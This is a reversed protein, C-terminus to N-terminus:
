NEFVYDDKRLNDMVKQIAQAAADPKIRDLVLGQINQQFANTIEPPWYWDLYITQNPACQEAYKMALPDESAQVNINTSAPEAGQETSWKSWEDNTMLDIVEMALNQRSPDIKGYVCLASGTGGPMERRVSTDSVALLPSTLELELDPYNGERITNIFSVHRYLFAAQGQTLALAAGDDDLSNVSEIFMGDRAYNYILELAAVSEPTTFTLDGALTQFTQEVSQNKTTQSFAWFYWVPWLYINKGPHTVPVAGIKQLEPLLQKLDDYTEPDETFGVQQLLKKNYFFPFGSIGGKPLAWLKEKITYTKQAVEAFRDRQPFTSLDLLQNSVAYRRLDQGNLDMIDIQDGAVSAAGFLSTFQEAPFHRWVVKIGAHAEEIAKILPENQQQEGASVIVFDGQYPGDSATPGGCASLLAAGLTGTGLLSLMQRRNLSSDIFRPLSM